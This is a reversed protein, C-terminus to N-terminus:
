KNQKTRNVKDILPAVYYKTYDLRWNEKDQTDFGFHIYMHNRMTERTLQYAEGEKPLVAKARRYANQYKKDCELCQSRLGDRGHSLKGFETVEKIEQCKKCKRRNAM